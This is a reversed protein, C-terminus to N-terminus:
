TQSSVPLWFLLSPMAAPYQEPVAQSPTDSDHESTLVYILPLCISSGAACVLNSTEQHDTSVAFIRLNSLM